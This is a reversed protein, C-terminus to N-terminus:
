RSGLKVVSAMPELINEWEQNGREWFRVKLLTYAEGRQRIGRCLSIEEDTFHMSDPPMTLETYCLEQLLDDM